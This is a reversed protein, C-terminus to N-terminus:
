AGVPLGQNQAEEQATNKVEEAVHSVKDMTDQVATQAKSVLNDRAEGLLQHERQTEPILLGAVTGAALAVVGLVMPTERMTRQLSYTLDQAKYKTGSALDGMGQAAGGALDGVGHVAGGALDGVQHVAGGALDGVGSALNGVQQMAGGALDGAGSALNGVQHAAGGALNGAGSALNSVQGAAGSALGGVAGAAGQALGGVAGAARSVVGEDGGSPGYQSGYRSSPQSGYRTEYQSNYRPGYRQADRQEYQDSYRNEYRSDYERHQSGSPRKMFLWALGIGALAAPVPNQQITGMIGAGFGRATEGAENVMQEARGITAERVIEKAQDKLHEPNLKEQIADITSSMENRTQEIQARIAEPEDASQPAPTVGDEAALGAIDDRGVDEMAGYSGLQDAEQGM